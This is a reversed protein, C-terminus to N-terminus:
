RLGAAVRATMMWSIRMECSVESVESCSGSLSNRVAVSLEACPVAFVGAGSWTLANGAAPDVTRVFM